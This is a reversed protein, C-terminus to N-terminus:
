FVIKGGGLVYGDCYFVLHQGPASQHNAKNFEFYIKDNEIVVKGLFGKSSFRPRALLELKVIEEKSINFVADQLKIKRKLLEDYEGLTIENKEPNIDTIFYARPFLVGLGRRQGITYLQYGKHEGMINGNKDIYNGTKLKEGLERTLFEIYGEQAFCIGQSDKKDHVELGMKKAIERVEEKKYGYLPFLTRKLIEPKIRYLMYSQDKKEDASIKLLSTKFEESYEIKCYHGTAIYEAGITDAVELLKKMKIKEDCVVCPSPTMGKSYEEIFYKIVEDKFDKEIDLIIHEINLKDCIIKADVIDQSKKQSDSHVLTVGIVEYGKEKLIYASTSSDVGGSMGIVVKNIKGM